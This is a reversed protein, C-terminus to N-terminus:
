TARKVFIVVKRDDYVSEWEPRGQLAHALASDKKVIGWDVGYKQLVGLAPPDGTTLLVYDYFVWRDGLRWAPMRGDVFIKHEPLWWLLFGGDGYENYLRTGVRERHRQAWLAAEIPYGTQQFYEAPARAARAVGQLHDPGLFGLLGAVVAPLVLAALRRLWARSQGLVQLQDGVRQLLEALLPVSLLLFFPINRFHRVALGLFVMLVTMRIPEVRRYWGMMLVALVGVYGLFWRGALTESSVPQWEHLVQLMFRDSLSQYIERHLHWGYPNLLTALASILVIVAVRGLVGRALIPEDSRRLLAGMGPVAGEAVIGVILSLALTLGLYFFGATFGGHVNSWILFVLPLTWSVEAHGHHVRVWVWSVIALGFLTVMQTRVGLFPLATWLAAAVAVLRAVAGVNAVSASWFFAWMTVAGFAVIIATLGWHGLSVSLAGIVADTLWAHDVWPWEPMTHSYPDTMPIHGPHLVLDVGMRLHWGFDPDVPPQLVLSSIFLLLLLIAPRTDTRVGRLSATPAREGEQMFMPM